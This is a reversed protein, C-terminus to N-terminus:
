NPLCCTSGATRQMGRSNSQNAKNAKFESEHNFCHWKLYGKSVDVTLYSRKTDTQYPQLTEQLIITLRQLLTMTAIWLTAVYCCKLCGEQNANTTYSHNQSNRGYPCNIFHQMKQFHQQDWQNRDLSSPDDLVWSKTMWMAFHSHTTTNDIFCFSMYQNKKDLKNNQTAGVHIM